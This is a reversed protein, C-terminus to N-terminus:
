LQLTVCPKARSHIRSGNMGMLSVILNRVVVSGSFRRTPQLSTLATLQVSKSKTAVRVLIVLGMVTTTSPLVTISYSIVEVRVNVAVVLSFSLTTCHLPDFSSPIMSMDFVVRLKEPANMNYNVEYGPRM